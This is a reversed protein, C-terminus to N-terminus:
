GNSQLLEKAQMRGSETVQQGSIITAIERIRDSSSLKSVETVIRNNKIDKRVKYHSAGKGAIQSLHTICLIQHSKALKEFTEKEEKTLRDNTQKKKLRNFENILYTISEQIEKKM